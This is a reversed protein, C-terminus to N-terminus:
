LKLIKQGPSDEHPEEKAKKVLWVAFAFAAWSIIGLWSPTFTVPFLLFLLWMGLGWDPPSAPPYNRKEPPISLM